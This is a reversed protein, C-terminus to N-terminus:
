WSEPHSDFWDQVGALLGDYDEGPGYLEALVFVVSEPVGYDEAVSLLYKERDSNALIQASMNRDGEMVM